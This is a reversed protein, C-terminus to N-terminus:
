KDEGFALRGLFMFFMKIPKGLKTKRILFAGIVLAGIVWPLYIYWDNIQAKVTPLNPNDPTIEITASVPEYVVQAEMMQEQMQEMQEYQQEPYFDTSPGGM